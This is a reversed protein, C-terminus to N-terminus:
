SKTRRMANSLVAILFRINGFVYRRWLRKPESGLRYLWELGGNQMWKPAEKATGAVFDFAAGIGVCPRSSLEALRAAAFDQKPSGLAVWVLDPNAADIATASDVYFDQDLPGFNPALTGAVQIGPYLIKVQEVLRTLTEDTTGLFFHSVEKVRGKDLVKLFLSPGRVRGPRTTATRRLRMAWVVPSGDPFNIGRGRLLRNYEESKSAHAVCYANALRVPVAEQNVSLNVVTGVASGLTTVEFPVTGVTIRAHRDTGVGYQM